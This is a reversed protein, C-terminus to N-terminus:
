ERIFADEAPKDGFERAFAAAQHETVEPFVKDFLFITDSWKPAASDVLVLHTLHEPHRAAFAVGLYGGWSSGPGDFFQGKEEHAAQAKALAVNFILLLIASVAVAGARAAACGPTTQHHFALIRM